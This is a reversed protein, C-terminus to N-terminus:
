GDRERKEWLRVREFLELELRELGLDEFRQNCVDVHTDDAIM